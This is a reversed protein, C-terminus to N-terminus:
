DFYFELSFRSFTSGAYLTKYDSGNVFNNSLSTNNIEFQTQLDFTTVYTEITNTSITRLNINNIANTQLHYLLMLTKRGYTKEFILLLPNLNTTYSASNLTTPIQQGATVVYSQEYLV